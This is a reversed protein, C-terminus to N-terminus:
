LQGKLKLLFTIVFKLVYVATTGMGILGFIFWMVSFKVAVSKSKKEKRGETDKEKRSEKAAKKKREKKGDKESEQEADKGSLKEKQQELAAQLQELTVLVPTGQVTQVIMPSGQLTQAQQSLQNQMLSQQYAQATPMTSLPPLTQVPQGHLTQLSGTTYRASNYTPYAGTQQMRLQPEYPQTGTSAFRPATQKQEQPPDPFLRGQPPTQQQM